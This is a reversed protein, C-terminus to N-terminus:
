MKAPSTAPPTQGGAAPKPAKPQIADLLDKGYPQGKLRTVEVVLHKTVDDLRVKYREELKKEEDPTPNGLKKAKEQLEQMQGAITVLKQKATKATADDKASEMATTMKDLTDIMDKLVTEFTVKENPKVTDKPAPKDDAAFTTLAAFLAALAGLGLLRNM